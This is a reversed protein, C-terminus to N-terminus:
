RGGGIGQKTRGIEQVYREPKKISKSGGGLAREIHATAEECGVGKFGIAEIKTSGGPLVEITITKM